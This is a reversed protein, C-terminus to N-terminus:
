GGFVQLWVPVGNIVLFVVLVIDLVRLKFQRGQEINKIVQKQVPCTVGRGAEFKAVWEKITNIDQKFGNKHLDEHLDVVMQHTEGLQKAIEILQQDM